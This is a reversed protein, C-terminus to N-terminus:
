RSAAILNPAPRFTTRSQDVQAETATAPQDYIIRFARPGIFKHNIRVPVNDHSILNAGNPARELLRLAEHAEPSLQIERATLGRKIQYELERSITEALDTRTQKILM